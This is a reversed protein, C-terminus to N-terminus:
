GAGETTEETAIEEESTDEKLPIRDVGASIIGSDASAMIGVLAGVSGGILAGLAGNVAIVTVKKILKRNM